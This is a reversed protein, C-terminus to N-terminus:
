KDYYDEDKMLWLHGLGKCVRTLVWAGVLGWVSWFGPIKDTVFVPHGRPILVDALVTLGIVGYIVKKLTPLNDRLSQIIDALKM